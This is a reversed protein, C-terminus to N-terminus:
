FAIPLMYTPYVPWPAVRVETDQRDKRCKAICGPQRKDGLEAGAAREGDGPQCGSGVDRSLCDGLVQADKGACAKDVVGAVPAFADPGQIWGAQFLRAAVQILDRDLPVPREITQLLKHLLSVV